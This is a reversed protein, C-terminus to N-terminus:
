RLRKVCRPPAYVEAEDAASGSNAEFSGLVAYLAPPEAAPGKRYAFVQISQRRPGMGSCTSMSVSRAM